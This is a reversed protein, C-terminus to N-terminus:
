KNLAIFDHVKHCVEAYNVSMNLDDNIGAKASNLHMCIDVYFDQGNDKESQLVGHYAFVKLNKIKIKDM